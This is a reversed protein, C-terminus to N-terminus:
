QGCDCSPVEGEVTGPVVLDVLFPGDHMVLQEVAAEIQSSQEVRTAPVGLAEAMAVFDLPPSELDFEPPFPTPGLGRERWYQQINLKLLKYGGNSITM